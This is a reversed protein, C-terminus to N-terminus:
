QYVYLMIFAVFLVYLLFAVGYTSIIFNLSMAYKEKMVTSVLKALFLWYLLEFLNILAAISKLWTAIDDSQFFNVFSCYSILHIGKEYGYILILVSSIVSFFMFIVDAKLAINCCTVYDLKTYKDFLLSGVFLCGGVVVIRLLIFLPAVIFSLWRYQNFQEFFRNRLTENLLPMDNMQPIMVYEQQIYVQVLAILSISLYVATPNGNLYKDEITM